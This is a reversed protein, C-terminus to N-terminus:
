GLPPLKLYVKQSKSKYFSSILFIWIMPVEYHINEEMRCSLEIIVSDTQLETYRVTHIEVYVCIYTSVGM